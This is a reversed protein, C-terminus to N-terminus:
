SWHFIVLWLDPFNSIMNMDSVLFSAVLESEFGTEPNGIEHNGMLNQGQYIEELLTEGLTWQCSVMQGVGEDCLEGEELNGEWPPVQGCCIVWTALM